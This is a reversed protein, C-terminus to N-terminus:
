FSNPYLSNFESVKPNSNINSPFVLKSGKLLELLSVSGDDGIRDRTERNLEEITISSGFQSFLKCKPSLELTLTTAMKQSQSFIRWGCFIFFIAM